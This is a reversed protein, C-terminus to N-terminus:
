VARIPRRWVEALIVGAITLGGGIVIAATIRERLLTAALGATFIPVLNFFLSIRAPGLRNVGQM